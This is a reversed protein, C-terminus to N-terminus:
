SSSKNAEVTYARKWACFRGFCNRCHWPYFGCLGRLFDAFGLRTVRVCLVSACYPCDVLDSAMLAHEQSTM